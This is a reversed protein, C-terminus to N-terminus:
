ILVQDERKLVQTSFPARARLGNILFYGCVIGLSLSILSIAFQTSPVVVAALYVLLQVYGPVGVQHQFWVCNSGYWGEVLM